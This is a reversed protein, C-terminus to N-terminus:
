SKTAFITQGEVYALGVGSCSFRNLSNCASSAFTFFSGGGLFSDGASTSLSFSATVDVGPNSTITMGGPVAHATVSCLTLFSLVTRTLTNM